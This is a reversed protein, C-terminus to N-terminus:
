RVVLADRSTSIAIDNLKQGGGDIELAGEQSYELFPSRMGGYKLPVEIAVATGTRRSM